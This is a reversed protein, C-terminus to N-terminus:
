SYKKSTEEIEKLVDQIDSIGMINEGLLAKVSLVKQYIESWENIDGENFQGTVQKAVAVIIERRENPLLGKLLINQVLRQCRLKLYTRDSLVIEEYSKLFSGINFRRRYEILLQPFIRKPIQTIGLASLLSMMQLYKLNCENNKKLM